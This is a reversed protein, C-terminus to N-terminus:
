PKKAKFDTSAELFQDELNGHIRALARMNRQAVPRSVNPIFSEIMERFKRNRESADKCMAAYADQAISYYSERVGPKSEKVVMGLMELMRLNTSISARSVHLTQTISGATIPEGVINLLGWIRGLIRPHGDGEAMIGLQEVFEIEADSIHVTM